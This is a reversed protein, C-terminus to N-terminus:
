QPIFTVARIIYSRGSYHSMEFRKHRKIANNQQKSKMM